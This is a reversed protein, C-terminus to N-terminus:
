RLSVHFGDGDSCQLGQLISLLLEGHDGGVIGGKSLQGGVGTNFSQQDSVGEAVDNLSLARGYRYCQVLHDVVGGGNGPTIGSGFARCQDQCVQRKHSVAIYGGTNFTGPRHHLGTGMHHFHFAIVPQHRQDFAKGLLTNRHACVQPEGRLGYILHTTIPHLAAVFGVSFGHDIVGNSQGFGTGVNNQQFAYRRFQGVADGRRDTNRNHTYTSARAGVSLYQHAVVHQPQVCTM